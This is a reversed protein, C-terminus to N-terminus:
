MLGAFLLIKMERGNVEYDTLLGTRLDSLTKGDNYTRIVNWPSHTSKNPKILIRLPLPNRNPLYFLHIGGENCLLPLIGFEEVTLSRNEEDEEFDIDLHDFLVRYNEMLYDLEEVGQGAVLCDFRLEVRDLEGKLFAEASMECWKTDMLHDLFETQLADYLNNAYSYLDNIEKIAEDEFFRAQAENKSVLNLDKKAKSNLQNSKFRLASPLQKPNGFDLIMEKVNQRIEEMRTVLTSYRIYAEQDHEDQSIAQGREQVKDKIENLERELRMYFGRGQEKRPPHLVVPTPSLFELPYLGPLLKQENEDLQIDLVVPGKSRIKLLQNASLATLDQEIQRKLARGGMKVDYGRGAVWSLAEPQINLITHRRIFGDRQLLENIQQQAISRIHEEKLSKFIIVQDIRNIFEPRFERELAARYVQADAEAGAVPRIRHEMDQAGVNSTMIIITNTFDVTRGLRDTLRGDDLLQLLLDQVNQHAKEIEDLLLVSFSRYRVKGTLQGEPNSDDGILRDIAYPDLYENMDFRLLAEESGTLFRTLVKAAQTKGVGTPGIFLLSSIPRQTNNLRAKYLQVVHDLAQVADEQGILQERLSNFVENKNFFYGSDVLMDRLGSQLSYENRVNQADISFAENKIVLQKLLRVTAGPLAKGQQFLRNVYLVQSIASISITTHYSNELERRQLLLMKVATAYDPEQIRIVQFLDTFPRNKEQLLQWERATSILVMQLQRRELYPKFVDCLTMENSASRGIRVLGIPNDILLKHAINQDAKPKILYKIISELRSQWQGVISMGSIVRNPDLAFITSLAEKESRDQKSDLYLKLASEVLTHRGIGEEGLLVFSLQQEKFLLDHIQATQEERCYAQQLQFPYNEGLDTATKRLETAGDFEDSEFLLEYINQEEPKEFSNPSFKLDLNVEIATCFDRKNAYCNEAVFKTGEASLPKSLLKRIIKELEEKEIPGKEIERILMFNDFSPLYLIRMRNVEFEIVIFQGAVMGKGLAFELQPKKFEMKEPDVSYWILSEISERSIPMEAIFKRIEKRFSLAAEQYRRHTVSPGPLFLPRLNFYPMGDVQIHQVLAPVKISIQTM